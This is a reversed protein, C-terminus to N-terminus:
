KLTLLKNYNIDYNQHFKQQAIEYRRIDSISKQIFNLKHLHNDLMIDFNSELQCTHIGMTHQSTKCQSWTNSKNPNLMSTLHSKIFILAWVRRFKLSTDTEYRLLFVTWFLTPVEM